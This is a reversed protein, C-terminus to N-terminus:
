PGCGVQGAIALYIAELDDPTPAFYYYEPRSAIQRLLNADADPGLGITFIVTGAQKATNAAALALSANSQGDTLLVMAPLHDPDARPGALEGQAVNIGSHIATSGGSILANIAANLQAQNRTLVQNLTAADNFSVVAAQEEALNMQAVFILAASKAASLKADAMSGSRDLVLAVDPPTYTGGVCRPSKLILPLSIPCPPLVRQYSNGGVLNGRVYEALGVTFRSNVPAHVELTVSRIENPNLRIGYLRAPFRLVRLRGDAEVVLGDLSSWRSALAGPQLWAQAGEPLGGATLEVDVQSSSSLTNIVDFRFQDSVMGNADFRCEGAPPQPYAVAHLNRQAINNEWPVRYDLIPDVPASVHVRLCFHGAISPVDWPISVVAYGGPAISAITRVTPLPTWGTPWGLGLGSAGFFFNVQINTVPTTGRNLVRAYIYNRQGAQPNQHVTSGDDTHRIWIDPSNWWPSPSSVSGTDQLNDRIYVDTLDPECGTVTVTPVPFTVSQRNGRNDDYSATASRNVPFAGCAKPKVAFNVETSGGELRPIYWTLTQGSVTPLAAGSFSGPVIDFNPGVVDTLNINAAPAQRLEGALRTYILALQDPSPSQYFHDPATAIERLLAANVDADLGVTYLQIGAERLRQAATRVDEAYAGEPNGDTLLIVAPTHGAVRRSGSMEEFAKTLGADMRSLGGCTINYLANTAQTRNGTLGTHLQATSAFSVVSAQDPPFAMSDLFAQGAAQAQNLKDGCMSASRDIVLAVDVAAGIESPCDGILKLTVGVQGDIRATSPYATKEVFVNCAPFDPTATPTPLPPTATPTANRTATPTPPRTPMSTPTATAGGQGVALKTVFADSYGSNYTPDFAGPTAPFDSTTTFGTVYASGTGDIAISNGADAGAGGLFTAYVLDSGASNLKIVFADGNEWAGGNYSPDFADPTTPFDSSNTKGTVYANGTGDVAIVNGYDISNGGLFTAYTLGSGAPNLKAVFADIISNFSTDFAGPTTPFGSSYTTGTVYVSGAGDVAIANGYDYSSGGLYTSYVLGSGAENLKVVFVDDYGNNYGIDFAGPTTPFDSSSTTGTVYASGAGDVAITNGGSEQGSGGLLTAYALGSGAPNLKVVFADSVGNFSIDFAGPTTPFDSSFTTGIVYASGASDVGIARGDDGSSSGLFTAYVLGSGAPNLKVVFANNLDTGGNYSTDFADPTTPFNTSKTAGTVYASGAGDVAIAKGEDRASGGLFTAYVLASGAPNLKAVFADGFPSGGNYSTDFAGPTTPFDISYTTGIVYASGASDVAIARGEDSSNSGGLFTSYLLDAPNDTPANPSHNSAPADSADGTAPSANLSAFPAVVEFAGDGIPQLRAGAGPAEEVQWLPLAVVGAATGLRLLGGDLTVTEAGEIRLVVTELDAGPRAALRPALQGEQNAFELDMDPYLDVYRVGAWVPVGSRWEDPDNDLFYSVTTDMRDFTEIHPQPNAGVFSLKINVGRRPTPDEKGETTWRARHDSAKDRPSPEWDAQRSTEEPDVVTIWIADEALWMAGAPGGWVQFRAGDDWQGVNEIFMVPSSQFAERTPTAAPQQVHSDQELPNAAPQFESALAMGAQPGTFRGVAMITVAAVIVAL